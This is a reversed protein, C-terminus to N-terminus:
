NEGGKAEFVQTPFKKRGLAACSFDIKATDLIRCSVGDRNKLFLDTLPLPSRLAWTATFAEPNIGSIKGNTLKFSSNVPFFRTPADPYMICAPIKNAMHLVRAFPSIVYTGSKRLNEPLVKYGEAALNTFLLRSGGPTKTANDPVYCD